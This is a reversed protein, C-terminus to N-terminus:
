LTSPELSLKSKSHGQTHSLELTRLETNQLLSVSSSPFTRQQPQQQSIGLKGHVRRPLAADWRARLDLPSWCAAWFSSGSSQAPTQGWVSALVASVGPVCPSPLPLPGSVCEHGPVGSDANHSCTSVAAKVLFM